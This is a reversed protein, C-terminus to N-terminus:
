LQRAGSNTSHSQRLVQVFELRHLDAAPTVHVRRDLQGDGEDIRTIAGILIGPPFLSEFRSSTSGATVILDGKSLQDAHPILDLVLDGPRGVTPTLIAPEGSKAARVSAAFNQDTLLTVIAGGHSVARVKGVLGAGCVVPQNPRLGDGSGKNIQITSFWANPSRAIVRATIPRYSSLGGATDIDLLKRLEIDQSRVLQLSAIEARLADRERTLKDRQSKADLTDGIWNVFDRPPKLVRNAGDQIPSLVEMAGRQMSHLTGGIAEGFYATLLGLSLAILGIAVFRRRRVTRKHM